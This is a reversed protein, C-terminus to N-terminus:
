STAGVTARIDAPTDLPTFLQEVDYFRVADENEFTVRAWEEAAAPTEFIGYHTPSSNIWEVVVFWQQQATM